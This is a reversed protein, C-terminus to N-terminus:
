EYEYLYISESGNIFTRTARFPYDDDDYLYVAVYSASGIVESEDDLLELFTVNGPNENRFFDLTTSTSFGNKDDFTLTLTSSLQGNEDTRTRTYGCNIETYEFSETSLLVDDVFYERKELPCSGDGFTYLAYNLFNGAQDFESVRNTAFDYEFTTFSGDDPSTRKLITKGAEHTYERLSILYGSSTSYSEITKIDGNDYYEYASLLQDDRIIRKLRKEVVPCVVDDLNIDSTVLTLVPECDGEETILVFRMGDFDVDLCEEGNENCLTLVGTDEDLTYQGDQSECDSSISLTGDTRFEMGLCAVEFGDVCGFENGLFTGMEGDCTIDVKELIFTGILQESLTEMPDPPDVIPDDDSCGMFFALLILLFYNNKM